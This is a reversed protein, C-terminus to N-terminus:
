PMKTPFNEGVKKLHFDKSIKKSKGFFINKSKKGIDICFKTYFGFIASIVVHSLELCVFFRQVFDAEKKGEFKFLDM